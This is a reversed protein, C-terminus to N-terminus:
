AARDRTELALDRSVGGYPNRSDADAPEADGTRAESPVSPVPEDPFLRHLPRVILCTAAWAVLLAGVPVVLHLIGAAPGPLAFVALLVKAGVSLSWALVTLLSFAVTVPVGGMRWARLDIDTDFSGVGAVGVAALLWFCVVVVLAATLLITPLGTAAALFTRMEQDGEGGAARM